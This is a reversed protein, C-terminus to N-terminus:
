ENRAAALRAEANNLDNSLKNVVQVIDLAPDGDWLQMAEFIQQEAAEARREAAELAALLDPVDQDYWAWPTGHTYGVRRDGPERPSAIEIRRKIDKLREKDM